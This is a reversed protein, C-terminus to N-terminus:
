RLWRAGVRPVNPRDDRCTPRIRHVRETRLRHTDFHVTLDRPRPGGVSPDLGHVHTEAERGLRLCRPRHLSALGTSRRSRSTLRLGNRLSHRVTEAYRHSRRADKRWKCALWHTRRAGPMGQARLKSSPSTECLESADAGRSHPTTAEVKARGMRRSAAQRGSRQILPSHARFRSRMTLLRTAGDRVMLGAALKRRVPQQSSSGRVPGSRDEM